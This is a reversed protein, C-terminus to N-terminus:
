AEKLQKPRKVSQLLQQLDVPLNKETATSAAQLQKSTARFQKALHHLVAATAAQVVRQDPTLEEYHVHRNIAGAMNVKRRAQDIRRVAAKPHDKAPIIVYGFNHVCEFWIQRDKLMHRRFTYFQQRGPNEHINMKAMDSLDDYSFQTIGEDLYPLIADYLARWEPYRSVPPVHEEM